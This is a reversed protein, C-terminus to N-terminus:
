KKRNSKRESADQFLRESLNELKEQFDEESRALYNEGMNRYWRNTASGILVVFAFVIGIQFSATLNTIVQYGGIDDSRLFGILFGSIFGYLGFWWSSRKKLDLGKITVIFGVIVFVFFNGFIITTM